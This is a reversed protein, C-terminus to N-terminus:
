PLPPNQYHRHHEVRENPKFWYSALNPGQLACQIGASWGSMGITLSKAYSANRVTRVYISNRQVRARPSICCHVYGWYSVLIIQYIELEALPLDFNSGRDRRGSSYFTRRDDVTPLHLTELAGKLAYLAAQPGSSVQLTASM